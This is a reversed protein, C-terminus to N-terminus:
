PAPAWALPALLLGRNREGVASTWGGSTVFMRGDATVVESAHGRLETVPAWSFRLPDRSRFVYTRNYDSPGPGTRTTFLYYRGRYPVVFPSELNGWAYNPKPDELVV